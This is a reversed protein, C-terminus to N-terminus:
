RMKLLAMTATSESRMGIYYPRGSYKKHKGTFTRDWRWGEFLQVAREIDRTDKGFRNGVFACVYGFHYLHHRRDLKILKM